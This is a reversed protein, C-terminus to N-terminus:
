QPFAHTRLRLNFFFLQETEPYSFSIGEVEIMRVNKYVSTLFNKLSSYSGLASITFTIKKARAKEDVKPPAIRELNIGKLILGNESSTRQIFNFLAVISSDIDTPLASNIKTLEPEYETLKNSLTELETFYKEEQRIRETKKELRLRLEEFNQYKPWWVLYGGVILLILLLISIIPIYRSM